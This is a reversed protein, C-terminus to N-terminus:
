LVTIVLYHDKKAVIEQLDMFKQSKEVIFSKLTPVQRFQREKTLMICSIFSTQFRLVLM